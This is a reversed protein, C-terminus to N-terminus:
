VPEFLTCNKSLIKLYKIRQKYDRIAAAQKELVVIIREFIKACINVSYVAYGFGCNIKSINQTRKSCSNLKTYIHDKRLM